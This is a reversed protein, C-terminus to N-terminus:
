DDEQEERAKPNSKDNAFSSLFNVLDDLESSSLKAGYDAPMPSQDRYALSALSSKSLLHIAGDRTILQISFNDENRAIGELSIGNTLTAVVTRRRPDLDRNPSVIADRISEPSRGQAYGGLDSAFFGGQGRIMHCSACAGKNFFIEKGGQANGPLKANTIAGQLTRLHAVLSTRTKADLFRFSPMSTNPVGKQLVQLLAADSLQRVQPRTAIDPAREGGKGDLGHCGACNTSYAVKGIAADSATGQSPSTSAPKSQSSATIGCILLLVTPLLLLSLGVAIANGDISFLWKRGIFTM